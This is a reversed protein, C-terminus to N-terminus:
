SPIMITVTENFSQALVEATANEPVTVQIDGRYYYVYVGPDTAQWPTRLQVGEVDLTSNWWWSGHATVAGFILVGALVGLAVLSRLRWM